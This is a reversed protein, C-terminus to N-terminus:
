GSRAECRASSRISRCSIRSPRIEMPDTALARLNAAAAYDYLRHRACLVGLNVWIGPVEDHTRAAERFLAFSQEYQQRVLAEAGLNNYFPAAAYRDSVTRYPYKERYSPENFDVIFKRQASGDVIANVHRGVVVNGLKGNFM